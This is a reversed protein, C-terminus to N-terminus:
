GSIAEGSFGKTINLSSSHLIIIKTESLSDLSKRCAPDTLTGLVRVDKNFSSYIYRKVRQRIFM